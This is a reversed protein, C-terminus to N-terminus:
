RHILSRLFEPSVPQFINLSCGDMFKIEAFTASSGSRIKIQSFGTGIQQTKAKRKSTGRKSFWAIFTYYKVGRERCFAIKSKGSEKWASILDEIERDSYSTKSIKDQSEM